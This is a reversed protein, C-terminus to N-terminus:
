VFASSSLDEMNSVIGGGELTHKVGKRRVNNRAVMDCVFNGLTFKIQVIRYRANGDIRIFNVSTRTKQLLTIVTMLAVNSREMRFFNLNSMISLLDNMEQIMM